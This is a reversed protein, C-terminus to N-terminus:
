KYSSLLKSKEETARVEQGDPLRLTMRIVQMQRVLGVGKAYWSTEEVSGDLVDIPQPGPMTGSLPGRSKVRLCDRFAQTPTEVTESGIEFPRLDLTIGQSKWKSPYPEGPAPLPLKLVAVPPVFQELGSNLGQAGEIKQAHMLVRDPESSLYTEIRTTSAKGTTEEIESIRQIWLFVPSQTDVVGQSSKCQETSRGTLRQAVERGPFAYMRTKTVQYSWERGEALPLYDAVESSAFPLGTSTATILLFVAAISTFRPDRM